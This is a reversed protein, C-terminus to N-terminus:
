KKIRFVKKITEFDANLLLPTLIFPLYISKYRVIAWLVPVTYGIVLMVLFFFFICLCYFAAADNSIRNEKKRTVFLVIGVFIYTYWEAAFFILMPSLTYDSFFPRLLTHAFALPANVAFSVFGAEMNPVGIFSHTKELQLFAVQKELVARPLNFSPVYASIFFIIVCVSLTMSFVALPAYKKKISIIWAFLIPILIFFVYIRMFFIFALSLIILFLKILSYRGEQKLLSYICYVITGTAAYILGEKHVSSGFFLLSPLLFCPIVALRNKEGYIGTFVRYLGAAGLFVIFNYLVVNVYYHNFSFIDLVSVVKHMLNSKLDNWYSDGSALVGAYPKTYGSYFINAFYEKPNTLLLHYENAGEKYYSWTDSHMDTFLGVIVGAAVKIAFIGAIFTVPLKTKKVFQM